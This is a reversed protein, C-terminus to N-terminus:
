TQFLQVSAARAAAPSTRALPTGRAVTPMSRTTGLTRDCQRKTSGGVWKICSKRLSDIGRRRFHRFYSRLQVARLLLQQLGPGRLVRGRLLVAQVGHVGRQHRRRVPHRVARAPLRRTPGNLSRRGWVFASLHGPRPAPGTPEGDERLRVRRPSGRRDPDPGARRM